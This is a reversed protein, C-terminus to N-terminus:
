LFQIITMFLLFAVSVLIISGVKRSHCIFDEGDISGDSEAEKGCIVKMFIQFKYPYFYSLVGIVLIAIASVGTILKDM